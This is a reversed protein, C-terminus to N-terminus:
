NADGATGGEEWLMEPTPQLLLQCPPLGRGDGKREMCGAAEQQVHSRQIACSPCSSAGLAGGGEGGARPMASFRLAKALLKGYGFCTCIRQTVLAVRQQALCVCTLGRQLLTQPRSM